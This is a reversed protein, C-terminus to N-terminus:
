FIPDAVDLQAVVDMSSVVVVVIVVDYVIIVVVGVTAELHILYVRISWM